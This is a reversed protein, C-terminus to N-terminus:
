RHRAAGSRAGPQVCGRLRFRDGLRITSGASYDSRDATCDPSGLWALFRTTGGAVVDHFVGTTSQALRYLTPNINGLGPKTQSARDVGPVPEALCRDGGHDAGGGLHGGCIGASGATFFYYGVHDASATFRSIPCTAHRTTPCEPVPRGRRGRFSSVPAEAPRRSATLRRTTGATEPIYSLASAGNATNTADLVLRGSRRADTGGM